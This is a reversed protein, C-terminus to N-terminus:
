RNIKNGFQCEITKFLFLDQHSSLNIFPDVWSVHYTYCQMKFNALSKVYVVVFIQLSLNEDTTNFISIDM